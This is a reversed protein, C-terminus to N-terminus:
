FPELGSSIPRRVDIYVADEIICPLDITGVPGTEAPGISPTPARTSEETAVQRRWRDQGLMSYLLPKLANARLERSRCSFTLLEPPKRM